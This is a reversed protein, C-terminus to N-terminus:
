SSEEGKRQEEALRAAKRDATAKKLIEAVEEPPLMTRLGEQHAATGDDAPIHRHSM